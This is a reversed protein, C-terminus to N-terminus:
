VLPEGHIYEEVVLLQQPEDVVQVYEGADTGIDVVEAPPVDTQGVVVDGEAGLDVGTGFPVLATQGTVGLGDVVTVALVAGIEVAAMGTDALGNDGDEGVSHGHGIQGEALM